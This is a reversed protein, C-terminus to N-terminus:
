FNQNNSDPIFCTPEMTTCVTARKDCDRAPTIPRERCIPAWQFTRSTPTGWKQLMFMPLSSMSSVHPIRVWRSFLTRTRSAVWTAPGRQPGRQTTQVASGETSGSLRCKLAECTAYFPLPCRESSSRALAPGRLGFGELIWASICVAGFGMGMDGGINGCRARSFHDPGSRGAQRDLGRLISMPLHEADGPKQTQPSPAM